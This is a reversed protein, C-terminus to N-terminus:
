SSAGSCLGEIMETLERRLEQYGVGYAERRARILLDATVGEDRLRPLVDRRGIERLRRKVKNREVVSHRHKPVV